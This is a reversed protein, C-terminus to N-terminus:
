QKYVLIDSINHEYYKLSSSGFSLLAIIDDPATKYQRAVGFLLFIM